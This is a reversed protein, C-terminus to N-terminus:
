CFKSNVPNATPKRRPTYFISLTSLHVENEESFAFPIQQQRGGILKGLLPGDNEGLIKMM